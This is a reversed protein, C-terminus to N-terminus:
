IRQYFLPENSTNEPDNKFCAPRKDSYACKKIIDHFVCYACPYHQIKDEAYLTSRCIVKRELIEGRQNPRLFQRSM